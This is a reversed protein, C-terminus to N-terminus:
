CHADRLRAARGVVVGLLTGSLTWGALIGVIWLLM